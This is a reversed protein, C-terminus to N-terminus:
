ITILIDHWPLHVSFVARMQLTELIGQPFFSLYWKGTQGSPKQPIIVGGNHPGLLMSELKRKVEIFFAEMKSIFLIRPWPEERV